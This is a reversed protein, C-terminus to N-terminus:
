HSESSDIVRLKETGCEKPEPVAVTGFNLHPRPQIPAAIFVDPGSLDEPGSNESTVRLLFEQLKRITETDAELYAKAYARVFDDVSYRGLRRQLDDYISGREKDM